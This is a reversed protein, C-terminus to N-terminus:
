LAGDQIDQAIRSTLAIADDRGLSQATLVDLGYRSWFLRQSTRDCHGAERWYGGALAMMARLDEQAARASARARVNREIGIAPCGMIQLREREEEDSLTAKKYRAWLAALVTPDLEALDGEVM